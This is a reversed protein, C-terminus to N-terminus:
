QANVGRANVLLVYLVGMTEILELAHYPLGLPLLLSFFVCVLRLSCLVTSLM